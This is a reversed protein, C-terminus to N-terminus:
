AQAGFPHRALWHRAIEIRRAVWVRDHALVYDLFRALGALRAPKGVIRCHMGVSMM